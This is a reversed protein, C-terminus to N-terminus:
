VHARGIERKRSVVYADRRLHHVMQRAGYFPTELHQEDILRMLRLNLYTEGAPQYYCASRSISVLDCLHAISLDKHQDDIM